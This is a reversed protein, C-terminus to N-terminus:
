SIFYATAIAVFGVVFVAPWLVYVNLNYYTQTPETWAKPLWSGKKYKYGKKYDKWIREKNAEVTLALLILIAGAGALGVQPRQTAIALFLILLCFFAWSVFRAKPTRRHIFLM